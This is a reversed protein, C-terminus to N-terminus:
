IIHNTLYKQQDDWKLKSFVKHMADIIDMDMRDLCGSKYSCATIVNFPKSPHNNCKWLKPNMQKKKPMNMINYDPDIPPLANVIAGTYIIPDAAPADAKSQHQRHHHDKTADVEAM